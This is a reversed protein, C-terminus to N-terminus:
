RAMDSPLTTSNAPMTRTGSPLPKRVSRFSAVGMTLWWDKQNAHLWNWGPVSRHVGNTNYAQVFEQRNFVRPPSHSERGRCAHASAPPRRAPPSRTPWTHLAAEPPTSAGHPPSRARGAGHPQAGPRWTAAHHQVEPPLTQVQSHPVHVEAHPLDHHPIALALHVAHRDRLPQPFQVPRRQRRSAHAPRAPAPGQEHHAIGIQRYLELREHFRQAPAVRCRGQPPRALARPRQRRRERGLLMRHAVLLHGLEQPRQAVAQLRRPLHSWGSRSAWNSYM